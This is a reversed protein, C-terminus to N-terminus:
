CRGAGVTAAPSYLFITLVGIVPMFGSLLVGSAFARGTFRAAPDVGLLM